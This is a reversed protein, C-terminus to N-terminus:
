AGTGRGMDIYMDLIRDIQAQCEEVVSRNGPTDRQQRRRRAQILEERTRAFDVALEERFDDVIVTM